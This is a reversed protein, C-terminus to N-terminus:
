DLPIELELHTLLYGMAENMHLTTAHWQLKLKKYFDATIGVMNKMTVTDSLYPTIPEARYYEGGLYDLIYQHRRALQVKLKLFENEQESTPNKAHYATDFLADYQQWIDLFQKIAQIRYEIEEKDKQHWSAM